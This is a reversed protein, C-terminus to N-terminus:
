QILVCKYWYLVHIVYVTNNKIASCHSRVKLAIQCTNSSFFWGSGPAKNDSLPPCYLLLLTVDSLPTILKRPRTLRCGSNWETKKKRQYKIDFGHPVYTHIAPSTYSYPSMGTNHLFLSYPDSDSHTCQSCTRCYVVIYSNPKSTILGYSTNSKKGIM